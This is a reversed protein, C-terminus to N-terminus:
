ITYDIGYFSEIVVYTLKDLIRHKKCVMSFIIGCVKLVIISFYCTEFLVIYFFEIDSQASVRHGTIRNFNGM